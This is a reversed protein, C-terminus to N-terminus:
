KVQMQKQAQTPTIGHYRRFAKSFYLPDAYGVSMAIAGVTLEPRACQQMANEMRVTILYQHIGQGAWNRFLSNVYNPTMRTLDAVDELTLPQAYHQDLYDRVTELMPEHGLAARDEDVALGYVERRYLDALMTLLEARLYEFRDAPLQGDDTFLKGIRGITSSGYTLRCPCEWGRAPTYQSFICILRKSHHAFWLLSYPERKGQRGESHSIGAELIALGPPSFDYCTDGLTMTPNGDLSLCLEPIAHTHMGMDHRHDSGLRRTERGNAWGKSKGAIVQDRNLETVRRIATHLWRAAISKESVQTM